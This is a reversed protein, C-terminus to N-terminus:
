YGHESTLYTALARFGTQWSAYGDTTGRGFGVDSNGHIFIVPTKQIKDNKSSKGGFSPCKLDPRDFNWKSYGINKSIRYWKPQYLKSLRRYIRM